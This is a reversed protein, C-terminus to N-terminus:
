FKIGMQELMLNSGSMAQTSNKLETIKSYGYESPDKDKLNILYVNVGNSILYNCIDLAKSKADADLAIYVTKVEQEIIKKKLNDLIIKGFLPIANNKVAIADFVGEVITIPLSWDILLDFGIIDKSVKPNKHKFSSDKYYSRGTFFNLKGDADYSPIIIMKDYEGTECYGISYRVMDSPTIGRGKLYSLANRFEPNNKNGNLIPIFEPPLSVSKQEEKVEIHIHEDLSESLDKLQSASANIKRFLNSLKRGKINCVWCHWYQSNLDIELKYKYHNCSPCRFSTNSGSTKKSRGLVSELLSLLSM